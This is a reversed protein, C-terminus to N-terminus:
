RGCIEKYACYTCKKKDMTQDFVMDPDLIEEILKRLGEEFEAAHDRYDLIETKDMQLFPNFDESYIEKITFIGPKVPLQNEPHMYQYFFAYLFTQLAAKNRKKDERDFLSSISEVVKTDKGTKYDLLRVVGEKIDMRDIVGGLSVEKRGQTTNM